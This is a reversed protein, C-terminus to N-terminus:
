TCVSLYVGRVWTKMFVYMCAGQCISMYHCTCLCKGCGCAKIYVYICLYRVQLVCLCVCVCMKRWVSVCVSVYLNCMYLCVHMYEEDDICKHVCVCMGVGEYIYM